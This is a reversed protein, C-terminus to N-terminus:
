IIYHNSMILIIKNIIEDTVLVYNLIMIKLCLGQVSLSSTRHSGSGTMDVYQHKNNGGTMSLGQFSSSMVNESSRGPTMDMYPSSSLSSSQPAMDMYPSSQPVPIPHPSASPRGISGTDSRSSGIPAMDLYNSDNGPLNVPKMDLYPSSSTAGGGGGTVGPSMELYPSSEAPQVQAIFSQTREPKKNSLSSSSRVLGTCTSIASPSPTMCLYPNDSGGSQSSISNDNKPTYPLSNPM